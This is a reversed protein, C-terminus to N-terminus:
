FDEGNVNKFSSASIFSPPKEMYNLNKVLFFRITFMINESSTTTFM